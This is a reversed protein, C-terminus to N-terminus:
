SNASLAGPVASHSLMTLKMCGVPTGKNSVSTILEGVRVAALTELVGLDARVHGLPEETGLSGVVVRVGDERVKGSGDHTIKRTGSNDLGSLLVFRVAKSICM